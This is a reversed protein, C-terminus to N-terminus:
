QPSRVLRAVEEGEHNIGIIYEVNDGISLENFDGEKYALSNFYFNKHISEIFGFGKPKNLNVIKGSRIDDALDFSYNISKLEIAIPEGNRNEGIRFSVIDGININDFEIKSSFYTYHFYLNKPSSKIFGYGHEKNLSVIESEYEISENEVNSNEHINEFSIDSLVSEGQLIFMIKSTNIYCKEIYHIFPTRDSQLWDSKQIDNTLFIANTDKQKMFKMIEHFIIFDGYPIDKTEGCGPFAYKWKQQDKANKYEVLLNDYEEVLFDKEEKSLPEIIKLSSCIKLLEDKLFINKHNSTTGDIQKKLENILSEHNLLEEICDRVNILEKWLDPYDKSLIQKKDDLYSKLKGNIEAQTKQYDSVVSNLPTFLDKKISSIRNRLFENEIENTIHIRDKNLDLFRLLKEKESSSMGYYSLIINTDVFIPTNGRLSKANEFEGEFLTLATYADKITLGKVISFSFDKNIEM